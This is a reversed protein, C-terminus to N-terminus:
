LGAHTRIQIHSTLTRHVPCKESIALLTRRQEPSLEGQLKIEVDIQDILSDTRECNACDEAHVKSHSLNLQVGHLSWGKRKAYMRLTIVKCAGLAALLLEYPSPAADRGGASVPEDAHLRHRGVSINELFEPSASEVSVNM